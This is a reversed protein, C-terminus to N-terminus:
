ELAQCWKSHKLGILNLVVIVLIVKGQYVGMIWAKKVKSISLFDEECIM